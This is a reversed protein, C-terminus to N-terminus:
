PVDCNTSRKGEGKVGESKSGGASERDWQDECRRSSGKRAFSQDGKRKPGAASRDGPCHARYTRARCGRKRGKPEASEDKDKKASPPWGPSPCIRVIM